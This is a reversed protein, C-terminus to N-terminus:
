FITEKEDDDEGDGCPFFECSVAAAMALDDM